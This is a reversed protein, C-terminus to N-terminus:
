EQARAEITELFAEIRTKWQGLPPKIYDDELHLVPLEMIELHEQLEPGDLQYTDCFRITYFLVGQVNWDRIYDDLYSFRQDLKGPRFTCPCTIGGLYREALATLADKTTDVDKWFARSGTCLDDMVVSAGSDEALRVMAVDDIESGVVILRPRSDSGPSRSRVEAIVGELLENFEQVPITMGAVLVQISETGSLLPPAPKRLEYLERLLARSRNHLEIAEALKEKSIPRGVFSELSQQFLELEKRFYEFSAEHTMHPVTICYTYPPNLHYKWIDHLRHMADCTHPIVMGSLFDYEGGLALDFCSRVYPCVITELYQDVQKLPKGVGGQIRYPVLDLATLFEVPTYACFYGIVKKGENALERVRAVRNEYLNQAKTLAGEAKDTM